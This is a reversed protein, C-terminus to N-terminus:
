HITLDALPKARAVLEANRLDSEDVHRVADDESRGYAM